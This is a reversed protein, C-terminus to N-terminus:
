IWGKVIALILGVFAAVTVWDSVLWGVDDPLRNMARGEVQHLAPM